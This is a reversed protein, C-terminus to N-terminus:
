RLMAPRAPHPDRKGDRETAFPQRPMLTLLHTGAAAIETLERKEKRM